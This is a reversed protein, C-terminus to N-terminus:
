GDRKIYIDGHAKKKGTALYNAPVRIAGINALNPCINDHKPWIANDTNHAQPGERPAKFAGQLGQKPPRQGRTELM